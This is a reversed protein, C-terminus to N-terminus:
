YYSCLFVHLIINCVVHFHNSYIHYWLWLFRAKLNYYKIWKSVTILESSWGDGFISSYSLKFPVISATHYINLVGLDDMCENNLIEFQQKVFTWWVSNLARLKKQVDQKFQSCLFHNLEFFYVDDDFEDNDEEELFGFYRCFISCSLWLITCWEWRVEDLWM